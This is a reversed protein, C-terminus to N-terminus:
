TRDVEPSRRPRRPPFLPSAGVVGVALWAALDGCRQYPTVARSPALSAALRTPEGDARVVVRGWPDVVASVGGAAARALWRRNEIARMRAIDLQMEAAAANGFWRDKAPNALLEAGAAAVQRVYRPDMAESCIAAGLRAGRLPLTRIRTGPTLEERGLPVYPRLPNTEAFPMLQIKDIQGSLRGGRVLFLSNFSHRASLSTRQDPGGVLWDAGSARADRLLANTDPTPERLPFDLAGEPWVVLAADSGRAAFDSALSDISAKTTSPLHVM